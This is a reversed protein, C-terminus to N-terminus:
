NTLQRELWARVDRYHVGNLRALRASLRDHRSRWKFPQREPMLQGPEAGMESFLKIRALRARATASAAVNSRYRLRHCQRCALEGNLFYLSQFNGEHARPCTMLHRVRDNLCQVNVIDVLWTRGGLFAAVRAPSLVVVTRVAGDDLVLKAAGSAKAALMLKALNLEFANEIVPVRGAKPQKM